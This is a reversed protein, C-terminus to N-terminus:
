KLKDVLNRIEKVVDDPSKHEQDVTNLYEAYQTNFQKHQEELLEVSRLTERAIHGGDLDIHKAAPDRDKINEYNKNDAYFAVCQRLLAIQNELIQTIIIM